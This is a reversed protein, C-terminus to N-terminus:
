SAYTECRAKVGVWPIKSYLNYNNELGLVASCKAQTDRLDSATQIYTSDFKDTPKSSDKFASTHFKPLPYSENKSPNDAPYIKMLKKNKFEDEIIYENSCITKNDIMTSIYYDPCQTFDIDFNKARRYKDLLAENAIIQWISFGIIMFIGIEVTIISVKWKTLVNFFLAALLLLSVIGAIITFILTNFYSIKRSSHSM